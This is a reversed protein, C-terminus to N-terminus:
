GNVLGKRTAKRRKPMVDPVNGRYAASARSRDSERQALERRDWRQVEAAIDDGTVYRGKRYGTLLPQPVWDDVADNLAQRAAKPLQDFARMSLEPTTRYNGGYVNSSMHAEKRRAVNCYQKLPHCYNDYNINPLGCIENLRLLLSLTYV